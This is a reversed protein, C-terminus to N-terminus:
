YDRQRVYRRGDGPPMQALLETRRPALLDPWDNRLQLDVCAETHALFIVWEVLTRRRKPPAYPQSPALLEPRRPDGPDLSRM